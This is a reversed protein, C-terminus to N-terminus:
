ILKAVPIKHKNPVVYGWWNTTRIEDVKKKITSPPCHVDHFNSHEDKERGIKGSLTIGFGRM